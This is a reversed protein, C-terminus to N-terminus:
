TVTVAWKKKQILEAYNKQKDKEQPGVWIRGDVPTSNLDEMFSKEQPILGQKLASLLQERVISEEIRDEYKGNERMLDYIIDEFSVRGERYEESFNGQWFTSPEDFFVPNFSYYYRLRQVSDPDANQRTYSKGAIDRIPKDVDFYRIDQMLVARGETHFTQYGMKSTGARWIGHLPICFVPIRDVRKRYTEGGGYRLDPKDGCYIGYGQAHARGSVMLFDTGSDPLEKGVHYVIRDNGVILKTKKEQGSLPAETIVESM